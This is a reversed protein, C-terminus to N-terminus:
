RLAPREILKLLLSVLAVLLGLIGILITLIPTLVKIRWEWTKRREERILRLVGLRGVKSLWYYVPQTDDDYNHTWWTPREQQNPVDVALREAKYIVVGSEFQELIHLYSELDLGAIFLAEKTRTQDRLVSQYKEHAQALNRRMARRTKWHRLILRPFSVAQPYKM